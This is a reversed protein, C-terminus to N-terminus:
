SLMMFSTLSMMFAEFIVDYLFHEGDEVELRATCVSQGASNTAICTYTGTHTKSVDMLILSHQRGSSAMKYGHTDPKIWLVDEASDEKLWTVSPQPSGPLALPCFASTYGCPFEEKM